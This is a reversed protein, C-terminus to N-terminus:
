RQRSLTRRARCADERGAGRAGLPVACRGRRAPGRRGRGVPRTSAGGGAAPRRGRHAQDLDVRDVDDGAALLQHQEAPEARVRARQQGVRGVVALQELVPHVDGRMTGASSYRSHRHRISCCTASGPRHTTSRCRRLGPSISCTSSRTAAPGSRRRRADGLADARLTGPPVPVVALQRELVQEAGPLHRGAPPAAVEGPDVLERLQAQGGADSSRAPSGRARPACPAARALGGPVEAHGRELVEGVVVALGVRRALREDGLQLLLTSRTATCTSPSPWRLGVERVVGALRPPDRRPRQQRREVRDDPAALPRRRQEAEVVADLDVRRRRLPDVAVVHQREQEAVLEDAPDVELGIAGRTPQQDLGDHTSGPTGGSATTASSASSSRASPPTAPARAPRRRRGRRDRGPAPPSRQLGAGHHRGRREHGDRHRRAAPQSSDTCEPATTTGRGTPRRRRRRPRGTPPSRGAIPSCASAPQQRHDAGPQAQGRASSATTHALWSPVGTCTSATARSGTTPRGRRTPAPWCAPGAARCRWGRRLHQAGAAACPTSGASSCHCARRSARKTRRCRSPRRGRRVQRGPWGSCSLIVPSSRRAPRRPRRGCRRRRTRRAPARTRARRDPATTRRRPRRGRHPTRPSSRAVRLHDAPLPAVDGRQHAGDGPQHGLVAGLAHEGCRQGVPPGHRQLDGVAGAPGARRHHEGRQLPQADVRRDGRRRHDLVIRPWPWGTPSTRADSGHARDREDREVVRAVALHHLHRRQDTPHDGVVRRLVGVEARAGVDDAVAVDGDISGPGIMSPWRSASAAASAPRSPHPRDEDGVAVAVVRRQRRPQLLLGARRGVGEPRVARDVVLGVLRVRRRRASPSGICRGARRASPTVSRANSGSTRRRRRRPPRWPLRSSAAGGHVRGPM